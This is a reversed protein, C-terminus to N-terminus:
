QLCLPADSIFCQTYLQYLECNLPIDVQLLQVPRNVGLVRVLNQM